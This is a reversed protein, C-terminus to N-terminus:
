KKAPPNAAAWASLAIGTAVSVNLSEVVGTGPIVLTKTLLAEVSKSLGLIEHGMVLVTKAPLRATYVSEKAHGSFGVLQYGQQKLAQLFVTKKAVQVLSIAEYGGESLRVWAASIRPLEGIEGMMYQCGFHAMSRTIAGLNHPNSVGDVFLLPGSVMPSKLRELLERGDLAEPFRALVALGEHHLSKTIKELEEVSVIHYAKKQEACHRLLSKCSEVRSQLCYVRIIDQPRKKWLAEVAHLGYALMEFHASM